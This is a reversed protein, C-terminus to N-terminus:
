ALPWLQLRSVLCEFEADEPPNRRFSQQLAEDEMIKDLAEMLKESHRYIKAWIYKTSEARQSREIWGMLEEKAAKVQSPTGWIRLNQSAVSMMLDM